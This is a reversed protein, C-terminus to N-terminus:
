LAFNESIKKWKRLLGVYDDQYKVAFNGNIKQKRKATNKFKFLHLRILVLCFKLSQNVYHFFITQMGLYKDLDVYWRFLLYPSGSVSNIKKKLQLICM